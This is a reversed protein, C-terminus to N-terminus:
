MYRANKRSMVSDERLSKIAGDHGRKEPKRKTTNADTGLPRIVSRLSQKGRAIAEAKQRFALGPTMTKPSKGTKSERFRKQQEERYSAMQNSEGARDISNSTSTCTSASPARDSINRMGGKNAQQNLEQQLQVAIEYDTTSDVELDDQSDVLIADDDIASRSSINHKDNRSAKLPSAEKDFRKQLKLAIEEDEMMDQSDVLIAEDICRTSSKNNHKDKRSAKLPSAEKDFREQLKLAVDENDMMDQSDVLIAEDDDNKGTSSNQQNSASSSTSPSLCDAKRLNISKRTNSPSSSASNSFNYDKSNPGDMGGHTEEQVFDPVEFDYFQEEQEDDHSDPISGTHKGNISSKDLGNHLINPGSLDKRSSDGFSTDCSNKKLKRFGGEKEGLDKQSLELVKKLQEDEDSSPNPEDSALLNKRSPIDLIEEMSKMLEEARDMKSQKLEKKSLELVAKLQEDEDSSINSGSSNKRFTTADFRAEGSDVRRKQGDMESCELNRKSLELDKKLEEDDDYVNGTNKKSSVLSNKGFTSVSTGGSNGMKESEDVRNHGMDRASLELAKRLEEEEDYADCLLAKREREEKEYQSKSAEMIKRLEEDESDAKSKCTPKEKKKVDEIHSTLSDYFKFQLISELDNEEAEVEQKVNVTNSSVQAEPRSEELVKDSSVNKDGRNNNSNVCYKPKKQGTENQQLILPSHKKEIANRDDDDADDDDADADDDAAPGSQDNANHPADDHDDALSQQL